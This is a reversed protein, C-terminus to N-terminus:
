EFTCLDNKLQCSCRCMEEGGYASPPATAIRSDEPIAHYWSQACSTGWIWEMNIWEMNVVRVELRTSPERNRLASIRTKWLLLQNEKSRDERKEPIMIVRKRRHLKVLQLCPM